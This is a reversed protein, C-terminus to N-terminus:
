LGQGVGGNGSVQERWWPLPEAAAAHIVEQHSRKRMAQAMDAANDATVFAGM